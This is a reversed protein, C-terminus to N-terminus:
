SRRSGTITKDHPAAHHPRVGPPPGLRLSAVGARHRPQTRARSTRAGGRAVSVASRWAGRMTSSAASTISLAVASSSAGVIAYAVSSRLTDDFALAEPDSLRQPRRVVWRRALWTGAPLAAGLILGTSTSISAVGDPAAAVLSWMTIATVLLGASDTPLWRALPDPVWGPATGDPAAADLPIPRRCTVEALVVGFLYGRLLLTWPRLALSRAHEGM